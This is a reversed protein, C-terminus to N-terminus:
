RREPVDWRVLRSLGTVVAALSLFAPWVNVLQQEAACPCVGRDGVPISGLALERGSQEVRYLGDAREEFRGTKALATALGAVAMCWGLVLALRLPLRLLRM